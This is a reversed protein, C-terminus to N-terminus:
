FRLRLPGKGQGRGETKMQSDDGPLTMEWPIKPSSTENPPYLARHRSCKQVLRVKEAPDFAQYFPACDHCTYGTLQKRAARGRVTKTKYKYGTVEFKVKPSYTDFSNNVTPAAKKKLINVDVERLGRFGGPPAPKLLSEHSVSSEEKPVEAEEKQSEEWPNNAIRARIAIMVREGFSIEKEKVQEEESSDAITSELCTDVNQLRYMFPDEEDDSDLALVTRVHDKEDHNVDHASIAGAFLTQLPSPKPIM